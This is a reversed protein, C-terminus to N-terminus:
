CQLWRECANGVAGDRHRCVCPGHQVSPGKDAGVLSSHEHLAVVPSVNQSSIVSVFVEWAM